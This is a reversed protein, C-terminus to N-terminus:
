RATRGRGQSLAPSLSELVGATNELVDNNWFRIVAYGQAQLWATRENDRVIAQAHQGGDVEVILRAAECVFDVIYNGIPVQRRFKWGHFRGARLYYWLRGEAQTMQRRLQKANGSNENNRLAQLHSVRFSM